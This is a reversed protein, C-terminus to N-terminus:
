MDVMRGRLKDFHVTNIENITTGIKNKCITLWRTDVDEPDYTSGLGICYDLAGPKGTKSGAMYELHLAKRGGGEASAQGVTIVDCCYNHSLSRFRRYLSELREHGAMDSSGRFTIHDAIDLVVIKANLKDLIRVIDEYTIGTDYKFKIHRGGADLFRRRLEEERGSKVLQVLEPSPMNLLSQCTRFKVNDGKEENCVWLIDEDEQLQTALHSVESAILSTKGSEPRGFVHGLTGGKLPRLNDNLCQLRWKNGTSHDSDAALVNFDDTVFEEHEEVAVCNKKFNDLIETIELISHNGHGDMVPLIIDCIKNAADQEILRTVVDSAVSDSVELKKLREFQLQYVSSNKETPYQLHFYTALEDVAIYNHHPYEQYYNHITTLIKKIETELKCSIINNIYKIYYEKNLFLKIISLENMQDEVLAM